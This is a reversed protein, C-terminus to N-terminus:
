GQEVRRRGRTVYFFLYGLWSFLVVLVAWLAKDGRSVGRARLVLALPIIYLALVFLTGSYYIM